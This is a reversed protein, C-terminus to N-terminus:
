QALVARSDDAVALLIEESYGESRRGHVLYLLKKGVHVGSAPVTAGLLDMLRRAAQPPKLRQLEKRRRM